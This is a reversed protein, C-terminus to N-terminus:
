SYLFLNKGYMKLTICKKHFLKLVCLEGSVFGKDLINNFNILINAICRDNIKDKILIDKM